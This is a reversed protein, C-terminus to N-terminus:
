HRKLRPLAIEPGSEIGYGLSEFWALVADEVSSENIIANM